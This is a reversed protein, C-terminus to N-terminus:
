FQRGRAIQWITRLVLGIDGLFSRSEIYELDLAVGEDFSLKGWGRVQWLGTLGPVVSLRRLHWPEYVEVEYPIPPRPGVVSMEGRLVNILQPLEDLHSRRLFRGVRTVRPDAALPIWTSGGREDNSPEGRILQEVHRRHTEQDATVHMTRFKYLRFPRGGLGVREQRFLVSGASEARIAVAIALLLPSSLILGTASALVDLTRKAVRYPAPTPAVAVTPLASPLETGRSTRSVETV